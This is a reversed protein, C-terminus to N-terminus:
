MCLSNNELLDMKLYIQLNDNESYLFYKDLYLNFSESLNPYNELYRLNKRKLIISPEQLMIKKLESHPTSHKGYLAKIIFDKSINSPHTVIPSPPNKDLLFYVIHHSMAYLSYDCLDLKNIQEKAWYGYGYKVPEQYIIKSYVSKYQSLEDESDLALFFIM